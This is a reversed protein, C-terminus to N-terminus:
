VEKSMYRLTDQIGKIYRHKEPNRFKSIFKRMGGTGANYAVLGKLIGNREMKGRMIYGWLILNNETDSLWEIVLKTRDKKKINKNGAFSFDDAGMDYLLKPNPIKSLVDLGTAPMIQAMGVEGAAGRLINGNEDRMRAGSEYVMQGIFWDFHTTDERLGFTDMVSLFTIVTQTDIKSNYLVFRDMVYDFGEPLVREEKVVPANEIVEEIQTLRKDQRINQYLQLGSILILLGIGLILQKGSIEM